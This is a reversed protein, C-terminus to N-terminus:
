QVLESIMTAGAMAPMSMTIKVPQRTDKAIWMTSRDPGGDASTVEVKFTEFRGAPVTVTESGDVKLQLLKPKQRQLDFSRFTTTYGDALPLCAISLVAATDAFVPGGLEVSISQDQGNMNRKGSAKNGSYDVELSLPGQKLSRKRVLLTGKEVIASDIVQGMPTELTETVLWAGNEETVTLANAITVEQGGFALRTQFKYTAPKLDTAPKPAGVSAADVKKTLTVTKPDVTIEALRGAVEPTGGEQYRGDLHKALFKEAAMYMAMNNVPRAFGHGEDPALIYEVPFGRDRLAIVIQEAEARNVRPDNAGQVVM